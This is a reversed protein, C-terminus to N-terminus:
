EVEEALDAAERLKAVVEAQTRDPADNFYVWPSDAYPDESTKGLAKCLPKFLPALAPEWDDHEDQANAREFAEVVAGGICWCTAEGPDYESDRLEQRDQGEANRSGAGQTWAGEPEILDAAARLIEATTM